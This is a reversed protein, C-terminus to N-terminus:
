DGEKLHDIVWQYLERPLRIKLQELNEKYKLTKLTKIERLLEKNEMKLKALEMNKETTKSPKSSYNPTLQEQREKKLYKDIYKLNRNGTQEDMEKFLTYTGGVNKNMRYILGRVGDHTRKNGFKHNVEEAVEKSMMGTNLLKFVEVTEWYSWHKGKSM